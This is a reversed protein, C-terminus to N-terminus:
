YETCNVKISAPLYIRFHLLGPTVYTSASSSYFKNAFLSNYNSVASKESLIQHGKMQDM